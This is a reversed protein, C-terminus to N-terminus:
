PLAEIVPAVCERVIYRYGQADPHLGDPLRDRWNPQQQFCAFVDVVRLGREAAVERMAQAYVGMGERYISTAPNPTQFIAEAGPASALVRLNAKYQAVTIGKGPKQNGDNLGHNVVYFPASVERPWPRNLGDEGAILETSNSGGVARSEIRAGFQEKWLPAANAMTSDGFLQIRPPTCASDTGGGGGGCAALLLSLLIAAWRLTNGHHSNGATKLEAMANWTTSRYAM